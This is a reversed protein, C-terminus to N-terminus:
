TSVIKCPERYTSQAHILLLEGDTKSQHTAICVLRCRMSQRVFPGRREIITIGIPLSM